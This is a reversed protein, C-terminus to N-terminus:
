KNTCEKLLTERPQSHLHHGGEAPSFHHKHKTYGVLAPTGKVLLARNIVAPTQLIFWQIFLFLNHSGRHM